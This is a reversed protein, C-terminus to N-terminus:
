IPDPTRKRGPHVLIVLLAAVLCAIALSFLAGGDTATEGPKLSAPIEWGLWPSMHLGVAAALILFALIAGARRTFPLILLLAALLEAVAVLLRGTPEFLAIGSREALTQFIINEGPLDFLKVMGAPPDSLPHLNAQVFVLVLFLALVWSLISRILAM